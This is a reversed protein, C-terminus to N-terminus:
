FVLAWFGNIICPKRAKEKDIRRLRAERQGYIERYGSHRRDCWGLGTPPRRVLRASSKLRAVANLSDEHRVQLMFPAFVLALDLWRAALLPPLRQLLEGGVARQLEAVSDYSAAARSFSEAVRRKDPLAADSM